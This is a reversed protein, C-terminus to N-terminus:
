EYLSEIHDKLVHKLLAMHPQDEVPAFRKELRDLLDEKPVKPLDPGDVHIVPIDMDQIRRVWVETLETGEGLLIMGAKNLVPRVLRMGPKLKEASIKPM